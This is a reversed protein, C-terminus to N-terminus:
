LGTVMDVAKCTLTAGGNTTNCTESGTGKVGKYAGTGGTWTIASKYTADNNSTFQFTQSYRGHATGALLWKTWTGKATGAGTTQNVTATYTASIVGNGLPKSCRIFGIVVGSLDAPAPNYQTWNCTIRSTRATTAATSAAVGAALAGVIAIV